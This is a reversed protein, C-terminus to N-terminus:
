DTPAPLARAQSRARLWAIIGPLLSLFIVVAVVLHIHEELDPVAQGLFYGTLTMSAVWGIGGAVNYVAFNRYTMEAAGAVVPAFTRLIPMFRAIVITKGGHREYFEHTKILHDRRFLLSNPRSYLAKGTRYGIWYGTADGVVAALILALNLTVIDFDGKAAFLGATVLLSDGPLFFGIMLGTEAFVILILGVLGGLRILEPVNYVTRFFDQILEL